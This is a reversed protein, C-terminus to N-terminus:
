KLNVIVTHTETNGINETSSTGAKNFRVSGAKLDFDEKKGDPYHVRQKAPNISVNVRDGRMKMENKEGPKMRTEVVRVREDEFLVNAGQAKTEKAPATKAKEAKTKEQAMVVTAALSMMCTAGLLGILLRPLPLQKM